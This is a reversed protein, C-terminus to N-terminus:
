KATRTLVSAIFGGTHDSAGPTSGKRHVDPELVESLASGDDGEFIVVLDVAELGAVLEARAEAELIPRGEGHLRRTSADDYVGVVLYDGDARAAELYRIHGVQLLDFHGDALVVRKKRARAREVEVQAQETSALKM